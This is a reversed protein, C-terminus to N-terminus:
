FGECIEKIKLIWYDVDKKNSSKIVNCINIISMIKLKQKKTIM